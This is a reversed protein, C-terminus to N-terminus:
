NEERPPTFDNRSASARLKSLKVPDHGAWATVQSGNMHASEDCALFVFVETVEEPEYLAAKDKDPPYVVRRLQTNLRLPDVANFTFGSGLPEATALSVTLEWLLSKSAPYAGWKMRKELPAEVLSTSVNIVRGFGNARMDPIVELILDRPFEFNVRIVRRFEESTLGHIPVPPGVIAANNVLVDFGGWNRRVTELFPRLDRIGKEIDFPHTTLRDPNKISDELSALAKQKRSFTAVKAGHHVFSEVLARGLGRGGGTVLIVRDALTGTDFPAPEM